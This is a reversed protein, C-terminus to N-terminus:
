VLMALVESRKKRSIMIEIGDFLVVLDTKRKKYEKVKDKNVLFSRHVRCFCSDKLLEEYFKLPKTSLLKRQNSLHIESYSGEAKICLIEDLDVYSIKALSAVGIREIKRGEQLQQFVKQIEAISPGYKIVRNVAEILDEPILPKEIYHAANYKFAKLAFEDYATVFIVEFFKEKFADLLDFATGDGLNIDLFVLEPQLKKILEVGENTSRADGLIEVAPCYKKLQNKIAILAKEEDEIIVAKM